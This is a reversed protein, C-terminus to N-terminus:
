PVCRCELPPVLIVLLPVALERAMMTEIRTRSDAAVKSKWQTRQARARIKSQRISSLQVADVGFDSARGSILQKDTTTMAAAAAAAAIEAEATQAPHTEAIRTTACACSRGTVAGTTCTTLCCSRAQRSTEHWSTALAPALLYAVFDTDALQGCANHAQQQARAPHVLVVHARNPTRDHTFVLAVFMNPVCQYHCCRLSLLTM